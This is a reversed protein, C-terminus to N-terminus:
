KGRGATHFRPREFDIRQDQRFFAFEERGIAPDRDVIIGNPTMWIEANLDGALEIMRRGRQLPDRVRDLLVIM